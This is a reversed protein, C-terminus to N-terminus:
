GIIRETLVQRFFGLFLVTYMIDNYLENYWVHQAM